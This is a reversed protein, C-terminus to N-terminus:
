EISRDMSKDKMLFPNVQKQIAVCHRVSFCREQCSFFRVPRVKVTLLIPIPMITEIPICYLESKSTFLLDVSNCISVKLDKEQENKNTRNIRYYDLLLLSFSQNKIGNDDEDINLSKM